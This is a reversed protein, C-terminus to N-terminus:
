VTIADDVKRRMYKRWCDVFVTSLAIITLCPQARLGKAIVSQSLRSIEIADADDASVEFKNGILRPSEDTLRAIPINWNRKCCPKVNQAAM